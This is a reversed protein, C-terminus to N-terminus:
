FGAGEPQAPLFGMDVRANDPNEPDVLVTVTGFQLYFGPETAVPESACTHTQGTQSDQWQAVVSYMVGWERNAHAAFPDQEEGNVLLRWQDGDKSLSCEMSGQAPLRNRFSDMTMVPRIELVQAQVPQANSGYQLQNRKKKRFAGRLQSRMMLLGPIGFFSGFVGLILPLMWTETFFALRGKEPHAPKVFVGVADGVKVDDYLDSGFSEIRQNAGGPLAYEVTLTPTGSSVETVVGPIRLASRRFLAEEGAMYLAILMLPLGVVLLAGPMIWDTRDLDFDPDRM